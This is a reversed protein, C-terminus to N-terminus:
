VKRKKLAKTVAAAKQATLGSKIVADGSYEAKRKEHAEKEANYEQCSAHCYPNRKPPVCGKCCSIPM